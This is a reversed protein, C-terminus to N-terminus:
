SIELASETKTSVIGILCMQTKYKQTNSEDQIFLKYKPSIIKIRYKNESLQVIHPDPVTHSLHWPGLVRWRCLVVGSGVGGIVDLSDGVVGSWRWDQGLVHKHFRFMQPLTFQTQQSLQLISLSLCVSLLFLFMSHFFVTLWCICFLM